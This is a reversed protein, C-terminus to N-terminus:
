FSSTLMIYLPLLFFAAAFLLFAYVGVRAWRASAKRKAM